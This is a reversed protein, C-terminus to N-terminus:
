LRTVRRVDQQLCECGAMGFNVKMWTRGVSVGVVVVVVAVFGSVEPSPSARLPVSPEAVTLQSSDAGGKSVTPPRSPLAEPRTPQLPRTSPGGPIEGSGGDEAMGM